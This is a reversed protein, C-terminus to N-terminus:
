GKRQTPTTAGYMREEIPAAEGGGGTGRQTTDDALAKSANYFARILEPHNGLGTTRLVEALKPSGFQTLARNAERFATEHGVDQYAPDAQAERAWAAAQTTFAEGARQAESARLNAFFAALGNAQRATIGLEKFAPQAADAVAADLTVGEPLEFTYAGDEPVTDLPDAEGGAQTEETTAKDGGEGADDAPTEGGLISGGGTGEGTTQTQTDDTASNDPTESAAGSGSGGDGAGAGGGTEDAPARTLKDLWENMTM